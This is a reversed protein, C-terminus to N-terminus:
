IHATQIIRSCLASFSIGAAQAAKPLLSTETFGPITNVELITPNGQADLRLDVRGFGELGLADRCRRALDVCRFQEEESLPAPVAYTSAGTTYKAAYDYYGGPACIEVIPLLEDGVLGVTLERGEIYDEVLVEGDFSLARELAPAYDEAAFVRELGISSGQRPPKLILPLPRTGAQGPGLREWGPTALGAIDFAQKSLIKDFCIRSVEANCGAYPLGRLSLEQQVTGDEGYCGHLAIFVADVTEPLEPLAAETVDIEHVTYGADRLGRAVAAGSRLSVEREASPGGLLVAIESYSTNSM